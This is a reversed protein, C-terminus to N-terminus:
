RQHPVFKRSDKIQDDSVHDDSIVVSILMSITDESIQRNIQDDNIYVSLSALIAHNCRKCLTTIITRVYNDGVHDFTHELRTVGFETHRPLKLVNDV